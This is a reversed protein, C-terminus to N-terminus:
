GKRQEYGKGIREVSTPKVFSETSCDKDLKKLCRILESRKIAGFKPM